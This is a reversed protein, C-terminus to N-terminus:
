ELLRPWIKGRIQATTPSCTETWSAPETPGPFGRAVLAAQQRCHRAPELIMNGVCPMLASAARWSGAGVDFRVQNTLCRQLRVCEGSESDPSARPGSVRGLAFRKSHTRNILAKAGSDSPSRNRTGMCPVFTAYSKMFRTAASTLGSMRRQLLKLRSVDAAVLGFRNM